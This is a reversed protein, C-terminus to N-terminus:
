KNEEGLVFVAISRPAIECTREKNYSIDPDTSGLLDFTQKNVTPLDFDHAEWHMNFAIYFSCDPKIRDVRAYAGNLLIGFTRAFHSYDPYWAKTGHCSVDPCGSYTYDMGRLEIVNAFVRHAKRLAILETTYKRLENAAASKEWITWGLENDCCYPNNNGKHTAGFEDGAMLLPTGQSLFLTTLANKMMKRRLKLISKKSTPGEIGCNWSYNIERGDKNNEGNEENHREDYSFLDALTFGNHDAIYNVKATRTGSSKLAEGFARTVGENGIMFRRVAIMYEENCVALRPRYNSGNDSICTDDWSPGILKADSLYPDTAILRASINGSMLRFGDVHYVEHWFRLAELMLIDPTGECFDMEMLVEIGNKHMLRVLEAFEACARQPKSAYSTKPIFYQAPAGYGWYNIKEKRDFSSKMIEDFDYCPMLLIANVGLAKIYNLKQGVGAFTGPNRVGSSFHMTFGRVHLKYIIMDSYDIAKHEEDPYNKAAKPLRYRLIKRSAGFDEDGAVELAYPDSVNGLDTEFDYEQASTEFTCSYINRYGPERTMEVMQVPKKAGKEFLRIRCASAKSTQVSAVYGRGSKHVGLKIM